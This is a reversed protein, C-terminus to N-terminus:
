EPQYGISEQYLKLLDERGYDDIIFQWDDYTRDLAEQPTLQGTVAESLHIDWATMMETTGPIRIYTQFIPYNYFNDQYAGIFQEADSPDYGGAEYEEVTATGYPEFWDYTTGPDVGTWGYAVNWHNIEPTAQWAMWYYALDPNEAYKSLVPHWSCGVQNGVMNPEDLDMFEGTELNYPSKTGPIGRAGLKGQIVSQTPDQALSGVDGWSFTMVANGSLFDAWAEGLSWGWMASPGAKSLALLMELAKVHGPSNILPEMTEPDFYYVNNYQTVKTPDDGSAPITVYPASLAMFHFFGQGGVKLHLTIGDDPDGDGNWDKGNFFQAIELVDEWTDMAVPMPHGMEEEFAQQWEPDEIIDKRYYLVQADHDNQAGYYQGGWQLLNRVAPSISERDWQPMRPDDFYEDLPQVFDNAIYDGYFNSCNLIVDYQHAGTQFDTFIKERMEAFPIEVIDYTAGTLEEFKPRWFYTPGSIAGRQGASYVGITFSKGAWDPDPEGRDAAEFAAQASKAENEDTTPFGEIFTQEAEGEPTPTVVVEKEVEVEQTVVVEKVVEKEVEVTEKVVVTEVVTQPTAAAGCGTIILAALSTSLVLFIKKYTM